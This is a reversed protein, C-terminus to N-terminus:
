IKDEKLASIRAVAQQLLELKALMKPSPSTQLLRDRLEHIRTLVRDEVGELLAPFLERPKVGFIVECARAVELTVAREERELRAIISQDLYGLLFALEEQTLLWKRRQM